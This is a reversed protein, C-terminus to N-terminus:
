SHGLLHRGSVVCVIGRLEAAWALMGLRRGHCTGRDDADLERAANDDGGIVKTRHDGRWDYAARCDSVAAM